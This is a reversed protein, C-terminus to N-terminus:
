VSHAFAAGLGTLSQLGPRECQAKGGTRGELAACRPSVSDGETRLQAGRHRPQHRQHLAGAVRLRLQGALIAAGAALVVGAAGHRQVNRDAVHPV